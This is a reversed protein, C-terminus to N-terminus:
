MKPPKFRFWLLPDGDAGCMPTTLRTMLKQGVAKLKSELELIAHKVYTDSLMKLADQLPHILLVALSFRILSSIEHITLM